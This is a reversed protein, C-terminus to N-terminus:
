VRFGFKDLLQFCLLPYQSLMSRAGSTHRVRHLEMCVTQAPSRRILATTVPSRLCNIIEQDMSFGLTDCFRIARLMAAPRETFRETANGTCRILKASIDAQGGYPDILAGDAGRAMANMTFDHHSLWSNLDDALFFDGKQNDKVGTVFPFKSSESKIQYGLVTVATKMEDLTCGTAVYDLDRPPRGILRDRVSGGVEYFVPTGM